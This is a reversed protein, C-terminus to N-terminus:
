KTYIYIYKSSAEERAGSIKRLTDLTEEYVAKFTINKKYSERIIKPSLPFTSDHKVMGATKEEM